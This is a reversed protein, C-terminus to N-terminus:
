KLVPEVYKLIKESELKSPVLNLGWLDQNARKALSNLQM